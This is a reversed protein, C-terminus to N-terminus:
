LSKLLANKSAFFETDKKWSGFKDAMYATETIGNKNTNTTIATIKTCVVANNLMLWVQQDINFKTKITM